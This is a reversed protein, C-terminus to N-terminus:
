ISLGRGGEDGACVALVKGSKKVVCIVSIALLSTGPVAWPVKLCQTMLHTM